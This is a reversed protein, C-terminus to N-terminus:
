SVADLATFTVGIDLSDSKVTQSNVYANGTTPNQLAGDFYCRMIVKVYGNSALPVKDGSPLLEVSARGSVSTTGRYGQPSVDGVYFDISAANFYPHDDDVETPSSISATLSSLNISDFRAAIYVTYDVFYVEESQAPVPEFELAMGEKANGTVGDIAYHNTLHKLYTDDCSEDRTVAVMDKVDSSVFSVEFQLTDRSLEEPSKGIVLNPTSKADVSMGDASVQDNSGFWGLTGNINLFALLAIVLMVGTGILKLEASFKESMKKIIVAM